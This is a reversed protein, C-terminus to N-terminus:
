APQKGKAKEAVAQAEIKPASGQAPLTIQVVHETLGLALGKMM